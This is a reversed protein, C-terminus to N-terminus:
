DLKRDSCLNLNKNIANSEVIGSCGLVSHFINDHSVKTKKDIRSLRQNIKAGFNSSIFKDSMWIFMPVDFQEKPAKNPATGHLFINNEGLSEGHDSTYFIISNKNKFKSIVANLFKDTHVISNDYANIIEQNNCASLDYSNCYPTYKADSSEFRDKYAHHSGITHLLIVKNGLKNKINDIHPLLLSDQVTKNVTSHKVIHYKTLLTTNNSLYKYFSQYNQLSLISIEFGLKEMVSVFSSEKLDTSHSNRTMRSFVCPMSSATSTDCSSANEFNILNSLSKLHPTTNRAYGNIGWAGGRATEGLVFVVNLDKIDSNLKFNFTASLNEVKEISNIYSQYSKYGRDLFFLTNLPSFYQLSLILLPDRIAGRPNQNVGLATILSYILVVTALLSLTFKKFFKFFTVRHFKVKSIAFSPLAYSLLVWVLLKLSFLEYILGIDTEFISFIINESLYINYFYVFYLTISALFLLIHVAVKYIFSGLLSLLTLILFFVAGALSSYIVADINAHSFINLLYVYITVIFSNRFITM